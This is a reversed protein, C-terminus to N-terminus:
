EAEMAGYRLALERKHEDLDLHPYKEGGGSKVPVHLREAMRQLERDTDATLNSWRKNGHQTIPYVYTM